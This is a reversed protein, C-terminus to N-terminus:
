SGAPVGCSAAYTCVNFGDADPDPASPTAIVNHNLDVLQIEESAKL